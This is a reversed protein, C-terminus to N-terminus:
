QAMARVADIVDHFMKDNALAHYGGKVLSYNVKDNCFQTVFPDGVMTPCVWDMEGQLILTNAAIKSAVKCMLGYADFYHQSAFHLEINALSQGFCLRLESVQIGPMSLSLEWSLWGHIFDNHIEIDPDNFGNRYDRFLVDLSSTYAQRSTFELYEQPFLNSAGNPGYLWNVGLKSPIFLGWFVQSIVRQPFLGSYIFGLTAGFSGGVVCWRSINFRQRVSEIDRLLAQLNNHKLEGKPKSRGAGRQDLMLIRYNNPDFLKLDDEVCGGGPGGHLYLLPIGDPNGYQALHLLHGDGVDLWDRCIFRPLAQSM